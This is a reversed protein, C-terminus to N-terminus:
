FLRGPFVILQIFNFEVNDFSVALEDEVNLSLEPFWRLNTRLIWSQLRNPRIDWGFAIGYSWKQDTLDYTEKQEFKENFRLNEYTVVPGLFPVFGHYDFVFKTVELGISKRKLEQKTGYAETATNYGRYSATVNLDMRHFYYGLAFDPMLSNPYDMIYQRNQENYTSNGNWFSSSLGIGAFFGNLKGNSALAETVKATRGSEWEAEASLTTEFMYKYSISAYVPPTTVTTMLERSIYYEQLNSYSWLLGVELLHQSSNYTLGTVFPMSTHQM